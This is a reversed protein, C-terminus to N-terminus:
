LAPGGNHGIAAATRAVPLMALQRAVKRQLRDIEPQRKAIEEAHLRNFAAQLPKTISTTGPARHRGGWRDLGAQQFRLKAAAYAWILLQARRQDAQAQILDADLPAATM